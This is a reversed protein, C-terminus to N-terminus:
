LKFGSYYEPEPGIFDSTVLGKQFYERFGKTILSIIKNALMEVNIKGYGSGKKM